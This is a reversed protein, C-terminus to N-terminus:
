AICAIRALLTHCWRGDTCHCEFRNVADICTGGNQCPASRCEDVDTECHIGEFGAVFLVFRLLLENWYRVQPGYSSLMYVILFWFLSYKLFYFVATYFTTVWFVGLLLTTVVYRCTCAHLPYAGSTFFTIRKLRKKRIKSFFCQFLHLGFYYKTLL